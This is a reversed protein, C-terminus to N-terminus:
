QRLEHGRSPPVGLGIGDGLCVAALEVQIREMSAEAGFDQKRGHRMVLVLLPQVALERELEGPARERGPVQQCAPRDREQVRHHHQRPRPQEVFRTRDEVM